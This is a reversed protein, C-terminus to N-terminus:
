PEVRRLDATTAAPAPGSEAATEVATEAAAEAAAEAIDRRYQLGPWDIRAVASYARDRADTLSTGLGTLGLVRGGATVLQGRTDRGVGASYLRVDSLAAVEELGDIADGTRPASPYGDTALVV